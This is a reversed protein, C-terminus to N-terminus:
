KEELLDQFKRQEIRDVPPFTGLSDRLLGWLYIIPWVQIEKCEDTYYYYYVRMDNTLVRIQYEPPIQIITADNVYSYRVGIRDLIPLGRIRQKEEISEKTKVRTETFLIPQKYVKPVKSHFPSPIRKGSLNFFLISDHPHTRIYELEIKTAEGIEDLPGLVFLIKNNWEHLTKELIELCRHVLDYEHTIERKLQNWRRGYEHDTGPNSPEDNYVDAIFPLIGTEPDEFSSFPAYRGIHKNFLQIAERHRSHGFILDGNRYYDIITDDFPEDLDPTLPLLHPPNNLARDIDNAIDGSYEHGVRRATEFQDGFFPIVLMPIGEDLAETYSNGGGHFIFLKPRIAQFLALQDYKGDGFIVPIKSTAAYQELETIIRNLRDACGPYRPVVSGFSVYIAGHPLDYPFSSDILTRPGLFKVPQISVEYPHKWLWYMHERPLAADSCTDLEDSKLTAPISCIAPIGLIRAVERAELCFFDYVILTPYFDYLFVHLVDQLEKSRMVNFIAACESPQKCNLVIETQRIDKPWPSTFDNFCLLFLHSSEDSRWLPELVSVHGRFPVSIYAVRNNM